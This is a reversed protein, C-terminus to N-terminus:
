RGSLTKNIGAEKNIIVIDYAGNHYDGLELKFTGKVFDTLQTGRKNFVASLGNRVIIFNTWGPGGHLIKDINTLRFPSLTSHQVLMLRGDKMCRYYNGSRYLGLLRVGDGLSEQIEEFQARCEAFSDHHVPAQSQMWADKGQEIIHNIDFEPIRGKFEKRVVSLWRDFDENEIDFETYDYSHYENMHWAEEQGLARAIDFAAARLWFYGNSHMFLQCHRYGSSIEWFGNRLQINVDYVPLEFEIYFITEDYEFLDPKIDYSELGLSEQIRKISKEVFELSAQKDKVDHFDHKIFQTLSISM